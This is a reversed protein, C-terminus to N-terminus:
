MLNTHGCRQYSIIHVNKDKLLRIASSISFEIKNSLVLNFIYGHKKDYGKEGKKGHTGSEEDHHDSEEGKQWEEHKGSAAAELDDYHIRHADCSNMLYSILVVTACVIVISFRSMPLVCCFRRSKLNFKAIERSYEVRKRTVHKNSM